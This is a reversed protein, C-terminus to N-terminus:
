KREVPLYSDWFAKDFPVKRTDFDNSDEPLLRVDDLTLETVWVTNRTIYWRSGGDMKFENLRSGRFLYPFYFGNAKRYIVESYFPGAHLEHRVLALSSTTIYLVGKYTSPVIGYGTNAKTPKPVTYELRYVTDEEYTTVGALRVDFENLLKLNFIGRRHEDMLLDASSVEFSPWYTYRVSKLLDEGGERVHLLKFKKKGKARYGEFYGALVSEVEYTSHTLSDTTRIVSYLQLNFENQYYNVHVQEVVERILDAPTIPKASVALESLLTPEPKLLFSFSKQDMKLLSDVSHTQSRYGVCSIRIKSEPTQKSIRITFEGLHDAATGEHTGLWAVHAFPVPRKDFEDQIQGKMWIQAFSSISVCILANVVVISIRYSVM